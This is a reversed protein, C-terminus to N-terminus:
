QIEQIANNIRARHMEIILQKPDMGSLRDIESQALNAARQSMNRFIREVITKDAGVLSFALTTLDVRKLMSQIDQDNMRSINQFTMDYKRKEVPTLKITRGIIDLDVEEEIQCQQLIAQPIRIGKSNGIRIISIKM